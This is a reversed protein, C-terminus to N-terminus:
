TTDNGILYDQNSVWTRTANDTSDAKLDIRNSLSTTDLVPHGNISVPKNGYLRISDDSITLFISDTGVIAIFGAIGNVNANKVLYCLASDQGYGADPKLIKMSKFGIVKVTDQCFVTFSCLVLSLLIIKKM